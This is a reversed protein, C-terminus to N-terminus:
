DIVNEVHKVINNWMGYRQANYPILSYTKEKVYVCRADCYERGLADTKIKFRKAKHKVAGVRDYWSKNNQRIYVMKPTRKVVEFSHEGNSWGTRNHYMAKLQIFRGIKFTNSSGNANPNIMYEKIIGWVDEIYWIEKNKSNKSNFYKENKLASSTKIHTMNVVNDEMKPNLYNWKLKQRILASSTQHTIKVHKKNSIM